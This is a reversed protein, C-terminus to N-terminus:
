PLSTKPNHILIEIILIFVHGYIFFYGSHFLAEPRSAETIVISNLIRSKFLANAGNARCNM